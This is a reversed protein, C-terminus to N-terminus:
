LAELVVECRPNQKDIGIREVLLRWIHRDDFGLADAIADETVKVVNSIDMRRVGPVYLRLHLFLPTTAPYPWGGQENAASRAILGADAKFKRAEDTLRVGRMTVHYMHNVSIGLPLTFSIMTM